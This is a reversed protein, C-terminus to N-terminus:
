VRKLRQDFSQGSQRDILLVYAGRSSFQAMLNQAGASAVGTHTQQAANELMLKKLTKGVSPQSDNVLGDAALVITFPGAYRALTHQLLAVWPGQTAPAFIICASHAGANSQQGQNRLFEELGYPNQQGPKRSGAILPLASSATNAVHDSGDAGFIWPSGLAGHSVAFRAVGAAAEDEPGTILYALTREAYFVSREALRVNLHRNRAYVRWLIDRTSDGPAYRRIDMRDGEPLGAPNPIGDEADMSRLVPLTRLKGTLPLIQWHAPQTEHWSFRCLGLVDRLMFRRTVSESLCRQAPTIEEELIGTETDPRNITHLGEPSVVQWDLSMLPLWSWAPLVFGSSNPFGAEASLPPSPQALMAKHVRPKLLLGSVTVMLLSFGVISLGCITLAFVVLDMRGYGFGRLALVCVLTVALGAVTFPFWVFLRKVRVKMRHLVDSLRHQLSQMRSM